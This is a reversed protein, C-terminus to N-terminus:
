TSLSFSLVTECYVMLGLVPLIARIDGAVTAVALPEIPMAIVGQGFQGFGVLDIALRSLRAAPTPRAPDSFTTASGMLAGARIRTKGRSDGVCRGTALLLVRLRV